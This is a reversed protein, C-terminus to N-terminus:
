RPRASAFTKASDLHTGEEMESERNRTSLPSSRGAVGTASVVLVGDVLEPQRRQRPGAPIEIRPPGFSTGASTSARPERTASTAYLKGDHVLPSASRPQKKGQFARRTPRSSFFRRTGCRNGTMADLCIARLSQETKGVDGPTATTLYIKGDVVAPSSWGRGPIPQKWAINTTADVEDAAAQRLLHGDGAPGRFEPWDGAHSTSVAIAASIFALLTRPM